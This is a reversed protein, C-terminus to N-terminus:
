NILEVIKHTWYYKSGIEIIQEDQLLMDEHEGQAINWAIPDLAKIAESTIASIFGIQIEEGYCEQMMQEFSESIDAEELEESLIAEIVWDTGYEVGYGELHRM